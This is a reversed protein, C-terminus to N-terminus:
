KQTTGAFAEPLHIQVSPLPRAFTRHSISSFCTNWSNEPCILRFPLGNGSRPPFILPSSIRKERSPSGASLGDVRTNVPRMRPLVISPVMAASVACRVQFAVRLGAVISGISRQFFLPSPLPYLVSYGTAQLRYGTAQLRYGTAKLRKRVAISAPIMLVVALAAAPYKVAGVIPTLALRVATKLSEHEAIFAAAPPSVRYYWDVFAQGARNTLLYRDRFERLEVVEPALWSGYAATAIFCGGGSSSSGSAPAPTGGPLTYSTENSFTSEDGTGTYATATFYYTLGADLGTVTYDTRNGADVVVTYVGSSRGYYLRYGTVLRDPSADWALKISAASAETTSIFGLLSVLLLLTLSRKRRAYKKEATISKAEM